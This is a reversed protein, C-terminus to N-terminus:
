IYLYFSERQKKKKKKKGPPMGVAQPLEQALFWVGIRLRCRWLPVRAKVESSVLLQCFIGMRWFTLFFVEFLSFNNEDTWSEYEQEKGPNDFLLLCKSSNKYMSITSIVTKKFLFLFSWKYYLHESLFRMRNEYTNKALVMTKKHKYVIFNIKKRLSKGFYM